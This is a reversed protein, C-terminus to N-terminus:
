LQLARRISQQTTFNQVRAIQREYDNQLRAVKEKRAASGPPFKVDFRRAMHMTKYHRLGKRQIIESRRGHWQLHPVNTEGRGDTVCVFHTQGNKTLNGIKLM